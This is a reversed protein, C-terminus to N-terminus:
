GQIDYTIMENSKCLGTKLILIKQKMFNVNSVLTTQKRTVYVFYHLHHRQSRIQYASLNQLLSPYLYLLNGHSCLLPVNQCVILSRINAGSVLSDNCICWTLFVMVSLPLVACCCASSISSVRSVSKFSSVSRVRFLVAKKFNIWLKQRSAVKTRIEHMKPLSKVPGISTQSPKKWKCDRFLM